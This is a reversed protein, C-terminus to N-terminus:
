QERDILKRLKSHAAKGSQGTGRSFQLHVGKTVNRKQVSARSPGSRSLYMTINGNPQEVLQVLAWAMPKGERTKNAM